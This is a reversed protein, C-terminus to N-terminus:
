IDALSFTLKQRFNHWIKAVKNTPKPATNNESSVAYELQEV